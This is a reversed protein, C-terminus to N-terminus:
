SAAYDGWHAIMHDVARLTVAHLTFTPNVAGGTPFLGPGALVLNPVDHCRGYSDTVSTATDDGMRTGGMMHAFALPGNWPQDAGAAKFVELGQAKAKEWIALSDASSKHVIRARRMGHSDATDSLEIRNGADPLEEGMAVMNAMHKTAQGMFENLAPGFLDARSTAIGLLDNPKMAPAILWQYSGFAGEGNADKRYGHRNTLQAGTVGMHPETDEGEFLGFVSAVTHAMFYRGVTGSSNALGNPQDVNASNLLLAPNHIASAALIVVDANVTEPDAGTSYEVGSAHGERNTLVRLVTAGTRIEAGAAEARPLYAVLPNWLANIPCGADCWGDYICPPRDGYWESTIAMPMPATKMGLKEFGRAIVRAQGFQKLPKMPYPEGPGRWIEAEADGSLGADKQIRDYYPQLETYDFPWDVGRGYLSQMRFDEEHMRPWTGYHHLAAGGLGWGANFAYGYPNDGTTEVPSGGWRLRRAWIQSSILDGNNWAPGAELLIVSKGAEALEAAMLAGAPGAGVIVVDVKDNNPARDM